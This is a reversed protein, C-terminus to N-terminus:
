ADFRWRGSRRFGDRGAPGVAQWALVRAPRVSTFPGYQGVDYRWDYKRDYSDILAADETPGTVSGEVLVVDLGSDLHVTVAPDAELLCRVVASGVSLHLRDDAWVGWVPRPHPYSGGHAVVWYTPADILQREVWGWDPPDHNTAAGFMRLPEAVPTM